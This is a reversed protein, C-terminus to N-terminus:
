ETVPQVTPAKQGGRLGFYLLVLGGVFSLKEPVVKQPITGPFLALYLGAFALLNNKSMSGGAPAQIAATNNVVTVVPTEEAAREIREIPEVPEAPQVDSTTAGDPTWDPNVVKLTPSGGYRPVPDNPYMIGGGDGNNAPLFFDNLLTDEAPAVAGINRM